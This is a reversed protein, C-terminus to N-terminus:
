SPAPVSNSGPPSRRRRALGLVADMHEVAHIELSDKIAKPVEDLDRENEKPIVVMDIARRGRPTKWDMLDFEVM